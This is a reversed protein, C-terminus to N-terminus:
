IKLDILRHLIDLFTQRPEISGRLRVAALNFDKFFDQNLKVIDKETTIISSIGKGHAMSILTQQDADSFFHHDPFAEFVEIQLGHEELMERFQRPHAIATFALIKTDKLDELSDKQIFNADVLGDPLFHYHYIDGQYYKRLVRLDSEKQVRGDGSIVIADARRLNNLNERLNGLPLMKENSLPSGAAIMVIDCDRGARRHQFADDLLILDPKFIRITERIGLSRDEAVVVPVQRFRRAILAPEDGSQDVPIIKGAGDSVVQLGSSKRGYGRSVVAPRLQGGLLEILLMTFPTKGSGGTTINGVSIVPREFREIKMLRKDYLFNRIETVLGYLFALPFLANKILWNQRLEKMEMSKKRVKFNV